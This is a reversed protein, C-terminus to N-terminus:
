VYGGMGHETADGMKFGAHAAQSCLVALMALTLQNLRTHGQKSQIQQM